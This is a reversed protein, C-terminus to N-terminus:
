QMGGQELVVVGEFVLVVVLIIFQEVAYQVAELDDEDVVGGDVFQNGGEALEHLVEHFRAVSRQHDEDDVLVGELDYQEVM